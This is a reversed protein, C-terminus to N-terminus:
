FLQYGGTLNTNLVEQLLLFVQKKLDQGNASRSIVHIPANADSFFNNTVISKYGSLSAIVNCLHKNM